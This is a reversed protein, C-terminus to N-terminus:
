CANGGDLSVCGLLHSLEQTTASPRRGSAVVVGSASVTCASRARLLAALMLHARESAAQSPTPPLLGPLLQM